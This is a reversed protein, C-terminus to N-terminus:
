SGSGIHSLLIAAFMELHIHLLLVDLEELDGVGRRVLGLCNAELVETRFFRSNKLLLTLIITHSAKPYLSVSECYGPLNVDM